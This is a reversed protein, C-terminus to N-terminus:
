MRFSRSARTCSRLSTSGEKKEVSVDFNSELGKHTGKRPGKQVPAAMLRLFRDQIVDIGFYLVTAGGGCLFFVLAAIGVVFWTARAGSSRPPRRSPKRVEDELRPKQRPCDTVHQSVKEEEENQFDDPAIEGDNQPLNPPSKPRASVLGIILVLILSVVTVGANIIIAPIEIEKEAEKRLAEQDAPTLPRGQTEKAKEFGMKAGLTVGYVVSCGQGLLLPLLLIAGIVRGPGGGIIRNRTLTFEGKVLAIIGFAFM